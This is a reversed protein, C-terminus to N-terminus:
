GEEAASFGPHLVGLVKEVDSIAQGIARMPDDSYMSIYEYCNVRRPHGYMEMLVTAILEVVV